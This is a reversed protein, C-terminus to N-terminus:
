KRNLERIGKPVYDFFKEVIKGSSWESRLMTRREARRMESLLARNLDRASKGQLEASIEFGDQTAKVKGKNGIIREIAPRIASSDDSSVKATLKFRKQPMPVKESAQLNLM